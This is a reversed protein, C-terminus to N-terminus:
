GTRRKRRRSSAWSAPTRWSRTFDRVVEVDTDLYIGGESQLAYHRTYDSLASWARRERTARSYPTDFPTNTEDWRKVVFDPM